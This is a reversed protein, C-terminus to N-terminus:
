MTSPHGLIQNTFSIAVLCANFVVHMPVACHSILNDRNVHCVGGIVKAEQPVLPVVVGGNGLRFGVLRPHFSMQGLTFTHHPKGNAFAVTM